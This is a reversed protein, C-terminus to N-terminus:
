KSGSLGYIPNIFVGVGGKGPFALFVGSPQDVAPVGEWPFAKGYGKGHRGVGEWAKGNKRGIVAVPRGPGEWLSKLGNRSAPTGAHQGFAKGPRGMGTEQPGGKPAKARDAPEPM